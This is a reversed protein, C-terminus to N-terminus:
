GEVVPKGMAGGYLKQLLSNTCAASAKNEQARRALTRRRHRPEASAGWMSSARPHTQIHPRVQSECFGKYMEMYGARMSKGDAKIQEPTRNKRAEMRETLLKQTLAGRTLRSAPGSIWAPRHACRRRM